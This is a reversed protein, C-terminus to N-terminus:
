SCDMIHSDKAHEKNQQQIGNHEKGLKKISNYKMMMIKVTIPIEHGNETMKFYVQILRYKDYMFIYQRGVIWLQKFQLLFVFM